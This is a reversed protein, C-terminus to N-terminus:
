LTGWVRQYGALNRSGPSPCLRTHWLPQASHIGPKFGEPRLSQRHPRTQSDRSPPLAFPPIQVWHWRSESDTSQATQTLTPDSRATLVTYINASPAPAPTLTRHHVHPSCLSINSRTPVVAPLRLGRERAVQSISVLSGDSCAGGTQSNGRMIPTCTKRGSNGENWFRQKTWLFHKPFTKLAVKVGGCVGRGWLLTIHDAMEQSIKKELYITRESNVASWISAWTLNVLPSWGGATSPWWTGYALAQTRLYLRM